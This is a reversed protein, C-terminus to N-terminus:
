WVRQSLLRPDDQLHRQDPDGRRRCGESGLADRGQRNWGIDQSFRREGENGEPAGRNAPDGDAGPGGRGGRSGGGHRCGCRESTIRQENGQEKKGWIVSLASGYLLVSAGRSQSVGSM